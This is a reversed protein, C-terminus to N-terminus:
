VTSVCYEELVHPRDEESGECVTGVIEFAKQKLREEEVEEEEMEEDVEKEEEEEGEEEEEEEEGETHIRKGLAM